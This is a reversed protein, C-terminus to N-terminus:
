RKQIFVLISYFILGFTSLSAIAVIMYIIMNKFSPSQVIVDVSTDCTSKESERGFKDIVSVTYVYRINSKLKSTDTYNLVSSTGILEGNRHVQYKCPCCCWLPTTCGEWEIYVPGAQLGFSFFPSIPKAIVNTVPRPEPCLSTITATATGKHKEIAGNRATVGM